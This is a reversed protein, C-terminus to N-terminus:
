ASHDRPYSAPYTVQVAFIIPYAPVYTILPSFDFGHLVFSRPLTLITQDESERTLSREDRWYTEDGM